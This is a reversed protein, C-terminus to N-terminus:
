KAAKIRAALRPDMTGFQEIQSIQNLLNIGDESFGGRGEDWSKQFMDSVKSLIESKSMQEGEPQADQGAFSKEIPQAQTQGQVGKSKPARAPLSTLNDLTDQMGVVAKGIEALAKCLIMTNSHDRASNAEVREALIGLSKKLASHQEALFDSVDLGKAMNEYEEDELSKTVEEVLSEDSEQSKAYSPDMLKFLEIKEEESIEGKQAKSLLTQQRVEPDTKTSIEELKELSKLLDNESLEATDVQKVEKAM